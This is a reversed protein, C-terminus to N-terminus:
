SRCTRGQTLLAGGVPPPMFFFLRPANTKHDVAGTPRYHSSDHATRDLDPARFELESMNFGIRQNQIQTSLNCVPEALDQNLRTRGLRIWRCIDVWVEERADVQLAVGRNECFCGATRSYLSVRVVSARYNIFYGRAIQYKCGCGM